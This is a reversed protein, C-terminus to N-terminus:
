AFARMFALPEGLTTLQEIARLLSQRSWACPKLANDVYLQLKVAPLETEEERTQLADLIRTCVPEIRDGSGPLDGDEIADETAFHYYVREPSIMVDARAKDPISLMLTLRKMVPIFLTCDAHKGFGFPCVSQM